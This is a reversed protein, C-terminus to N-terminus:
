RHRPKGLEEKGETKWVLFRIRREEGVYTKLVGGSIYQALLLFLTKGNNLKGWESTVEDWTLWFIRRLVRYESV